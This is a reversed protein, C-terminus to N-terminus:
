KKTEKTKSASYLARLGKAPSGFRRTLDAVENKTLRVSVVESKASPGLTPRPM